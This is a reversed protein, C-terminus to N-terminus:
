VLPVIYFMFETEDESLLSPYSIIDIHPNALDFEMGTYLYGQIEVEILVSRSSSVTAIAHSKIAPVLALITELDLTCEAPDPNM